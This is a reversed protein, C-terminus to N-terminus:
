TAEENCGIPRSYGKKIFKIYDRVGQMYCELHVKTQLALAWNFIFRTCGFHKEFQVKQQSNPYIRYKYAKLFTQKM